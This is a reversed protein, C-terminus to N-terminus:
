LKKFLKFFLEALTEHYLKGYHIGDRAKDTESIKFLAKSDDEAFTNKHNIYKSKVETELQLMNDSWNHWYFPINKNKCIEEIFKYNKIYRFLGNYENMFQACPNFIRDWNNKDRRDRVWNFPILREINNFDNICEYRNFDPFLIFIAEFKNDDYIIKEYLLRSITEIGGGNVGYNKFSYEDFGLKQTLLYAWTMKEPLGIGFTNSCGFCAIKKDKDIVDSYLRYQESGNFKNEVNYEIDVNIWDNKKSNLTFNELTDSPIWTHKTIISM